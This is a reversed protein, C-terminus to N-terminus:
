WSQLSFYLLTNLFAEPTSLLSSCLLWSPSVASGGQKWPLLTPMCLYSYSYSGFMFSKPGRGFYNKVARFKDGFSEPATLPEAEWEAMQAPSATTDGGM